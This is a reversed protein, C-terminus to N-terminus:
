QANQLINLDKSCRKQQMQKLKKYTDQRPKQMTEQKSRIEIIQAKTKSARNGKHAM